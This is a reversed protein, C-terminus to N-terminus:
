PGMSTHRAATEDPVVGAEVDVKRRKNNGYIVGNVRINGVVWKSPSRLRRKQITLRGGAANRQGKTVNGVM